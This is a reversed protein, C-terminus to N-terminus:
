LNSAIEKQKKMLNITRQQQLLQGFEEEEAKYKNVKRNILM